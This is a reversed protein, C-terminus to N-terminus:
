EWDPPDRDDWDDAYDVDITGDYILEEIMETIETVIAEPVQEEARDEDDYSVFCHIEEVEMDDEPPYGPDGNKLYMCGPDHYWTGYAEYEVYYEVDNLTVFRDGHCKFTGRSM